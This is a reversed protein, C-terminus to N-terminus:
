SPEASQELAGQSEEDDRLQNMIQLLNGAEELSNDVEFSLFPVYRLALRDKLEKRIFAAASQIGELADRKAASDGMVSLSVLASRLDHTTRVQTISIVGTLRPDKVQRSLLQSIEQRLLENVRDIRRNM